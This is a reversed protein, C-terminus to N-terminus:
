EFQVFQEVWYSGHAEFCDGLAVDEQLNVEGRRADDRNLKYFMAFARLM